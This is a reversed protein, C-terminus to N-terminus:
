QAPPPPTDSPHNPVTTPQSMIAKIVSLASKIDKTHSTDGAKQYLTESDEYATKASSYDKKNFLTVADIYKMKAQSDAISKSDSNTPTSQKSYKLLLGVCLAVIIILSFSAIIIINRKSNRNQSDTPNM